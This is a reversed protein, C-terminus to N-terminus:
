ESRCSFGDRLVHTLFYVGKLPKTMGNIYYAITVHLKYAGSVSADHSMIPLTMHFTRRQGVGYAAVFSIGEGLARFAVEWKAGM